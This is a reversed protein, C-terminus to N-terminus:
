NPTPMRVDDIVIVEYPGTRSELKLGLQDEFAALITPLETKPSGLPAFAVEWEFNGTLGTMDVVPRDLYPQAVLAILDDMTGTWHRVSVGFRPPIRRRCHQVALDLARGEALEQALLDRCHYPSPRLYPGERDRRRLAFIPMQRVESHTRLGFREALLTRLMTLSNQAPDGKAQITFPTALIKLPGGVFKHRELSLPVGYAVTIITRLPVSTFTVQGPASITWGLNPPKTERVSAVDFSPQQSSLVAISVAALWCSGFATTSGKM